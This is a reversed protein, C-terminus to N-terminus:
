QEGAPGFSQHANFAKWQTGERRWLFTWAFPTLPSTKGSKDTATFTGRATYVALDRSLVTVHHDAIRIDQSRLKGYVERYAALLADRGAYITGNDAVRFDPSSSSFHAFTKDLDVASAAAVLAQVTADIEGGVKSREGNSLQPGATTCSALVLAAMPVVIKMKRM